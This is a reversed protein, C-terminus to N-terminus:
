RTVSERMGRDDVERAFNQKWERREKWLRRYVSKQYGGEAHKMLLVKRHENFLNKAAADANVGHRWIRAMEAAAAHMWSPAWEVSVSGQTLGKPLAKGTALHRLLLGEVGPVFAGSLLRTVAPLRLDIRASLYPKVHATSRTLRGTFGDRKGVDAIVANSPQRHLQHLAVVRGARDYKVQSSMVWRGRGRRGKRVSAQVSGTEGIYPVFTFNKNSLMWVIHFVDKDGM